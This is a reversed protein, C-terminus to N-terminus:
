HRRDQSVGRPSSPVSPTASLLRTLEGASLVFHRRDPALLDSVPQRARMLGVASHDRSRLLFHGVEHALARGLVRGLTLDRDLGPWQHNDQGPLMLSPVLTAATNPYMVITPEPVDDFFQISGLADSSMSRDKREARVVALRIAGDRGADRANSTHIDVGYEAWVLGAEEMMADELQQPLRRGEFVVDLRLRPSSAALGLACLLLAPVIAPINRVGAYASAASIKRHGARRRNLTLAEWRPQGM